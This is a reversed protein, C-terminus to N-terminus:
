TYLGGDLPLDVLNNSDIFDSFDIMEQSFRQCGLQKRLFRIVNFDGFLCWPSVWRNQILNLEDWFSSRVGEQNPGYVDSGTWIFGDDLCKWHCSV